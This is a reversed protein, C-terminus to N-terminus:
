IAKLYDKLHCILWFHLAQLQNTLGFPNKVLDWNKGSM